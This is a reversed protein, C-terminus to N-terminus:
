KTKDILERIEIIKRRLRANDDQLQQVLLKTEMTGEVIERLAYVLEKDSEILIGKYFIDGNDRIDLIVNTILDDDM